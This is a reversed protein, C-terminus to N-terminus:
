RSSDPSLTEKAEVTPDCSALGARACYIRSGEHIVFLLARIAPQLGGPGVKRVAWARTGGFTILHDQCASSRRALDSLRTSLSRDARANETLEMLLWDAVLCPVNHEPWPLNDTVNSHQLIVRPLATEETHHHYSEEKWKVLRGAVSSVCENLTGARPWPAGSFAYYVPQM